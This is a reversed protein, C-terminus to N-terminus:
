ISFPFYELLEYGLTTGTFSQFEKILKIGFTVIADFCFSAARQFKRLFPLLAGM